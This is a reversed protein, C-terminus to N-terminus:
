VLFSHYSRSERLNFICLHVLALFMLTDISLRTAGVRYDADMRCASNSGAIRERVHPDLDAYRCGWRRCNV